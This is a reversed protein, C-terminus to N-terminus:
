PGASSVPPPVDIDMWMGDMFHPRPWKPDALFCLIGYRGPELRLPLVGTRGPALGTVGGITRGAPNRPIGPEYLRLFDQVSAGPELKLLLLEHAQTGNNQVLVMREGATLPRDFSYSFEKMSVMVDAASASKFSHDPDTVQLSKTMGHVVHPLGQKDPIGCILVYDGPDLDLLVAAEEGPMVSNVGGYRVVWPPLRTSDAALAKKFDKETKKGQLRLFQVHHVDHGRNKLRIINLGGSIRDPGGFAYEEAVIVVDPPPAGEPSEPFLTVVLLPVVAALLSLAPTRSRGSWM